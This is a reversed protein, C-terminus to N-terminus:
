EVKRNEITVTTWLLTIGDIRCQGDTIVKCNFYETLKVVVETRSYQRKDFWFEVDNDVKGASLGEKVIFFSKGEKRESFPVVDFMSKIEEIAQQKSIEEM